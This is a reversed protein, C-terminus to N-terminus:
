RPQLRQGVGEELLTALLHPCALPQSTYAHLPLTLAPSGDATPQEHRHHETGKAHKGTRLASSQMHQMGGRLCLSCTCIVLYRIILYTILHPSTGQWKTQGGCPGAGSGQAAASCAGVRRVNTCSTAFSAARACNELSSRSNPSPASQSACTHKSQTSPAM